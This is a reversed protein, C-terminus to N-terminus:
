NGPQNPLNSSDAVPVVVLPEVAGFIDPRLSGARIEGGSHEDLKRAVPGSPRSHASGIQTLYIRSVGVADALAHIREPTKKHAKLYRRMDNM